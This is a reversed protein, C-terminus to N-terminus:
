VGVWITRARADEVFQGFSQVPKGVSVVGVIENNWRIPAGVFMVSTRPDNEVDRSTRAGYIGALSRSVDSWQSYDAGTARGLSDFLVRGNRDTVYARLEVRNKHLNYIQASFERAYLSRFVPELRATNIAGAIVDQEVLSAMLQTTEVLSEEASERYRPDIDLVVRYLLFAIGATYILLIGIFIRTRRSM